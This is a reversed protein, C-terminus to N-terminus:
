PYIFDFKFTIYGLSNAHIQSVCCIMSGEMAERGNPEGNERRLIMKSVYM